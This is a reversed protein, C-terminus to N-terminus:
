SKTRCAQLNIWDILHDIDRATTFCQPASGRVGWRWVVGCQGSLGVGQLQVDVARLQLMCLRDRCRALEGRLAAPQLGHWRQMYM